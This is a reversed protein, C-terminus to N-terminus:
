YIHYPPPSYCGNEDILENSPCSLFALYDYIETQSLETDIIHLLDGNLRSPAGKLSTLPNYSAYYNGYVVSPGGELTRLKNNSCDFDKGIHRICGKLSELQNYNCSLSGGIYDSDSRNLGKLSTLSNFSVDIYYCSFDPCGDLTTLSNNICIFDDTYIPCYDLNKLKLGSVDYSPVIFDHMDDKKMIKLNKDIIVGGVTPIKVMIFDNWSYKSTYHIDRINLGRNIIEYFRKFFRNFDHGCLEIFMNLEELSTIEAM